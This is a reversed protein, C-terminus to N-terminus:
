SWHRRVCRRRRWTSERTTFCWHLIKKSLLMSPDEKGVVEEKLKIAARHMEETQRYKGQSHFVLALNNMSTLTDPHEKGLVRERLELTERHMTEAKEDKGQKNLLLALNNMSGLTFPHDRGLVNEKLELTEQHMVEAEEYKGLICFSEAVNLLLTYEAEKDVFYGRFGLIAQAHALYKMWIDRNEYEPPPYEEAVRGMVEEAQQGKEGREDLWNRMALRVLRHLDFSDQEGRQTIFAYAKLTGIAEDRDLKDAPPLLPAPIDKEALFSMFM